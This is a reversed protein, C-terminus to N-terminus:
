RGQGSFEVTRRYDGYGDDGSFNPCVDGKTTQALEDDMLFCEWRIDAKNATYDADNYLMHIVLPSSIGITISDPILRVAFGRELM